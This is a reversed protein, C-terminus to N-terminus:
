LRTRMLWHQSFPGTFNEREREREVATAPDVHDVDVVTAITVSTGAQCYVM